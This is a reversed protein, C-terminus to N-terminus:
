CLQLPAIRYWCQAILHKVLGGHPERPAQVHRLDVKSISRPFHQM